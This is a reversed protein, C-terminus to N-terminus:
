SILATDLFSYPNSGEGGGFHKDSKYFFLVLVCLCIQSANQLTTQTVACGGGGLCFDRICGQVFCYFSHGNKQSVKDSTIRENFLITHARSISAM